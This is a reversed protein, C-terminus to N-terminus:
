NEAKKKTITAQIKEVEAKKGQLLKIGVPKVSLIKLLETTNIALLEFLEPLTLNEINSTTKLFAM